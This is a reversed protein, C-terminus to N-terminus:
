LGLLDQTNISIIFAFFMSTTKILVNKSVRRGSVRIYHIMSNKENQMSAVICAQYRPSPLFSIRASKGEETSRYELMVATCWCHFFVDFPYTFVCSRGLIYMSLCRKFVPLNKRFPNGLMHNMLLVLLDSLWLRIRTVAFTIGALDLEVDFATSM